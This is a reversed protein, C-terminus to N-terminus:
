WDVWRVAGISIWNASAFDHGIDILRFRECYTLRPLYLLCTVKCHASSSSFSASLFDVLFTFNNCNDNSRENVFECKQNKRTKLLKILRCFKVCNKRRWVLIGMRLHALHLTCMIISYINHLYLDHVISGLIIFTM